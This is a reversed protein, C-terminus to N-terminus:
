YVGPLKNQLEQSKRIQEVEEETLFCPYAHDHEILYKAVADYLQRRQTQIYPGYNGVSEYGHETKTLPGEDFGIEFYKL